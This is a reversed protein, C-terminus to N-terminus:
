VSGQPVGCIVTVPKSSKSGRRVSQQRGHLYSRFWQLANGKIGYSTQLRQVLIDHDVTDFAASLDLLALAAVDGRDVAALIDSLVHLVATEASHRPRFGSQLSPLLDATELYGILQSAALREFLKSMVSLNSIPRFSSPDATDLGPKKIVPTIFADKYVAPFHGISLSRNFLEVIYPAIVDVIQKLVSTPLPDAASTKDPLRQVATIVDDVALLKFSSFTTDSEAETYVPPPADQTLRRVKDVKQAFYRSFDSVDITDNPPVRGRGLLRDVSQWLKRPNAQDAEITTAWFHSCKRQRLDSYYRHQTYWATKTSDVAAVAASDSAASVARRCAASYARELKRTLRKAARCESDFWPDASRPRRVVSYSPILRDCIEKIVLTYM